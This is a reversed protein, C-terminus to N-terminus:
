VWGQRRFDMITEAWRAQEEPLGFSLRSWELMPPFQRGVRIGAEAMRAIYTGLDGNIRHMMFNANTPLYELGLENCTDHVIKKSAENVAVSRAMLGQDNLSAVGAAAALVNPNNQMVFERLREITKPHAIGYGLRMGAMGFIKSFTRVVIVNPKSEIWKLSSWYSPSNAYEFYAEDMLFTTTDPADAVWADIDACNTITGTPNNPNCFYVIAPRGAGEAAHRMRDLDHEYTSTLPVQVLNFSMPRQYRPVDEFTPEATVLPVNPGQYAQVAMQLVETSGAGLILNEKKVGVFKTLADMLPPAFDGPYRNANPIADIVAQRAAPSLGLSNENSSLRISGNALTKGPGWGPSQALLNALASSAGSAGVLGAAMGTTVFGRRDM